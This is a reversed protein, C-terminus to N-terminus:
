MRWTLGVGAVQRFYSLKNQPLRTGYLAYSLEVDLHESVARALKLSLSNQAEDEEVLLIEPSLFIGDPYSSRGLAGQALLTFRWPLRVGASGSLRHRLVTEGRSNSSIEQYTYTLGLALPGRYTYGVGVTLASDERLGLSTDERGLPPTAQVGYDRAGYEGFATLTHRRNLRYRGQIGLEPGGFNAEPAPRYVFRHAGARVRLALRVDPAYEAFASAGLDSYARSGGRRDKLRGEVGLGWRTGLAMSGEIAAAQVLLDEEARDIFKRGGLEYHGVLQAREGTLSGEGVALLSLVADAGSTRAQADTFDRLPNSDVSLRGTLRLSGRGDAAHAGSALVLLALLLALRSCPM